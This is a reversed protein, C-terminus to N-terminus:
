RTALEKLAFDVQDTMHKSSFVVVILKFIHVADEINETRAMEAMSFKLCRRAPSYKKKQLPVYQGVRRVIAHLYHAYCWVVLVFLLLGDDKAKICAHLYAILTMGVVNSLVANTMAWSMDIVIIKFPLKQPKTGYKAKIYSQYRLLLRPFLIGIEDEHQDNSVMEVVPIPANKPKKVVLSYILISKKDPDWEVPSVLSGPFQFSQEIVNQYPCLPVFFSYM